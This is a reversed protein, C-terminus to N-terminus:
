GLLRMGSLDLRLEYKIDEGDVVYLPQVGPNRLYDCVDSACDKLALSSKQAKEDVCDIKEEAGSEEVPSM